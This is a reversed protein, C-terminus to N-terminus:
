MSGCRTCLGESTCAVEEQSSPSQQKTFYILNYMEQIGLKRKTSRERQRNEAREFREKVTTKINQGQSVATMTEETIAGKRLSDWRMKLSCAGM